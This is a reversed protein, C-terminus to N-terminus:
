RRQEKKDQVSLYIRLVLRIVFLVLSVILVPVYYEVPLTRTVMLALLLIIISLSIYTYINFNKRTLIKDTSAMTKAM